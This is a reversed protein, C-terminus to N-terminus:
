NIIISDKPVRYKPEGGAGTFSMLMTILGVRGVFMLIVVVAKGGTSLLPTVGLSSGVTCFASVTEFLLGKPSLTPEVVLLIVFFLVIVVISGFIMASARRISNESIERNFVVVRSRGRVIAVLNAWAVAVTNVKIGGATSQSAGGIWMLVM